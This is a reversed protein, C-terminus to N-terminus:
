HGLKQNQPNSNLEFNTRGAALSYQGESPRHPALLTIQRLPVFRPSSPQPCILAGPRGSAAAVARVGLEGEGLTQETSDALLHAKLVWPQGGATGM